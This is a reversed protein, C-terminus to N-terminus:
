RVPKPKIHKLVLASRSPLYLKLYYPSLTAMRGHKEPYYDLTQDVLGQGGFAIDDTNLVIKYKGPDVPIGYDAFSRNPNFNFAFLLCGRRFALLQDSEHAVVMYPFSENYIDENKILTVMERDFDSLFHYRLDRNEVLSWQRRAYKYSWNNGERPFDIWEPHGFENGMFNLYGGGATAITVLRIMKHLAMGRDIILNQDGKTMHFYMEKDMLRFIITKDGVLAQDHSEAYGITKEDERHRSLEHFIQRVNWSEDPSEKITKIWYDPTGMALRYDFGIGGSNVPAAIGPMGSMEEAITIADPNVEHILKNALTLYTIADEDQNGDYYDNYSTFDRSLGHDPYLMSTVGDFRFGDFRYEELWFRCNSLLFHLVENKGYDFCLSDWAIHERRYGDHFYQYHTGDFMALGEVENKVAHSHVLDMIVALGRGHAEDILAKLDDPMGFRSSVAFFNSVHYGFSGYYPHEQIAMLQLVNYGAEAIRPLLRTRFENFSGIKEEETAMGIHAEYVFPKEPRLHINSNKWVYPKEPNFVQANFILTEPDQIVRTAYSPIRDGRGNSWHVSLRFLDGDKFTDGACTIEWNGGGTSTLAFDERERWNTFDGILYIRTANPAWERFVWQGAERHLGFYLHGGAFESLSGNNCLIKEKNKVSESRQIIKDTFPDLWPDKRVIDPIKM